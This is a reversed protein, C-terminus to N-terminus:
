RAIMLKMAKDFTTANRAKINNKEEKRRIEAAAKAKLRNAAARSEKEAIYEKVAIVGQEVKDEDFFIPIGRGLKKENNPDPFIGKVIYPHLGAKTKFGCREAAEQYSLLKNM